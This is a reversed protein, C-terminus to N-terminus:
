SGHTNSGSLAGRLHEGLDSLYRDLDTRRMKQYAEALSDIHSDELGSLTTLAADVQHLLVWHLNDKGFHYFKIGTHHELHDLFAWAEEMSYCLEQALGEVTVLTHRGIRAVPYGPEMVTVKHNTDGPRRAM